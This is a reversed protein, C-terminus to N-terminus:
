EAQEVSAGHTSNNLLAKTSQSHDGKKRRNSPRAVIACIFCLSLLALVLVLVQVWFWVNWGKSFGIFLLTLCKFQVFELPSLNEDGILAGGYSTWGLSSRSICGAQTQILSRLELANLMEVIASISVGLVSFVASVTAPLLVGGRFGRIPVTGWSQVLAVLQLAVIAPLTSPPIRADDVDSVLLLSSYLPSDKTENFSLYRLQGEWRLAEGFGFTGIHVAVPVTGMRGMKRSKCTKSKQVIRVAKDTDQSRVKKGILIPNARTSLQLTKTCRVPLGNVTEIPDRIYGGYGSGQSVITVNASEFAGLIEKSAVWINYMGSCMADKALSESLEMDDMDTTSKLLGKWCNAASMNLFGLSGNLFTLPLRPRTSSFMSSNRLFGKETTFNPEITICSPDVRGLIWSNTNALLEAKSVNEPLLFSSADFSAGYSTAEYGDQQFSCLAGERGFSPKGQNHIKGLMALLTSNSGASVIKIEKTPASGEGPWNLAFDQASQVGWNYLARELVGDQTIDVKGEECSYECEHEALSLRLFFKFVASM